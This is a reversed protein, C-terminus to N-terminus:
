EPPRINRVPKPSPLLPSDKPQQAVRVDFDLSMHTPRILEELQTSDQNEELAHMHMKEELIQDQFCRPETPSIPPNM